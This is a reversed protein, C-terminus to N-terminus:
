EKEAALVPTIESLLATEGDMFFSPTFFRTWAM